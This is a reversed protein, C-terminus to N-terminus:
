LQSWLCMSAGHAAGLGLAASAFLHVLVTVRSNKGGATGRRNGRMCALDGDETYGVVFTAKYFVLFSHLMVMDSIASAWSILLWRLCWDPELEREGQVRVPADFGGDAHAPQACAGM